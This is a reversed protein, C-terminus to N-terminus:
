EEAEEDEDNNGFGDWDLKITVEAEAKGSVKNVIDIKRKALEQAAKTREGLPADLGFQDKIEGRMVGTFYQLIEEASAIKSAELLEMRHKIESAIYPKSVITYGYAGPTKTIYGADITSQRANGTEIYLDIFKAEKITLKHGDYTTYGSPPIKKKPKRGVKKKVVKKENIQKIEVMKKAM